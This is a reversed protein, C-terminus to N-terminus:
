KSFNFYYLFFLLWVFYDLGTNEITMLEDIDGFEGLLVKHTVKIMDFLTVSDDSLPEWYKYLIFKLYIFNFYYIKCSFSLIRIIM